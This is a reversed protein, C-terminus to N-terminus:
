PASVQRAIAGAVRWAADNELHRGDTTPMNTRELLVRPFLSDPFARGIMRQERPFMALLPHVPLEV